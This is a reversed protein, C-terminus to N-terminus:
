QKLKEYTKDLKGRTNELEKHLTKLKKKYKVEERKFLNKDKIYREIIDTTVETDEM